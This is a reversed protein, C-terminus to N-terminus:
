AGEDEEEKIIKFLDEIRAGYEIAIDEVFVLRPIIKMRLRKVLESRIFGSASSLAELVTGTTDKELVSIYVTANRLDDSVDVSTITIFGLRPDKVRRMIIEAIEKRLLDGVRKSRKYPLM